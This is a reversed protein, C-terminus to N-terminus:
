DRAWSKLEKKIAEPRLAGIENDVQDALTRAAAEAQAQKDREARAGALRQQFGWGLAGVLGAGLALITPNSLLWVLLASM